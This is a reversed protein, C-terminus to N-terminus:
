TAGKAHRACHCAACLVDCKAIEARLRDLAARSVTQVAESVNFAKSAPDRHHFHLQRMDAPRKGCDACGGAKAAAIIARMETGVAERKQRMKQRQHERESERVDGQAQREHRLAHLRKSDRARFEADVLRRASNWSIGLARAIQNTNMGEARLAQAEAQRETGM